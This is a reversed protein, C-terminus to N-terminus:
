PVEFRLVVMGVRIEDGPKIESPVGTELRVGRLFTSNMTGIEEAIFFKTGRRHIKAHRRSVSRQTDLPSLDVDPFIGTVPDKRGITTESTMSLSFEMGSTAHVLKEPGEAAAQAGPSPMERARMRTGGTGLTAKLLEDTERLRRSLKRMMRVAIEPNTRLMQDFTSGNIQLLKVDTLARATAARPMDDLVSMEGFFDGKELVALIQTEETLENFIEIKGEQIIYMETGLDGERFIVEGPKLEIVYGGIKRQPAPAPNAPNPTPTAGPGGTTKFVPNSM